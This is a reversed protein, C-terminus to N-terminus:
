PQQRKLIIGRSAAGIMEEAIVQPMFKLRLAENFSVRAIYVKPVSTSPTYQWPDEVMLPMFNTTVTNHPPFYNAQLAGSPDLPLLYKERFEKESLPACDLNTQIRLYNIVRMLDTCQVWKNGLHKPFPHCMPCSPRPCGKFLHVTYVAEGIM